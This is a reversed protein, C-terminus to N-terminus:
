KEAFKCMDRNRLCLNRNGSCLNRAKPIPVRETVGQANSPESLAKASDPVGLEVEPHTKPGMSATLPTSTM